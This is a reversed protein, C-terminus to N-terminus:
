PESTVEEYVPEALIGPTASAILACCLTIVINILGLIWREWVNDSSFNSVVMAALLATVLWACLRMLESPHESARHNMIHALLILVVASVIAAASSQLAGFGWVLTMPILGVAMLVKALAMLVLLSVAIRNALGVSDASWM